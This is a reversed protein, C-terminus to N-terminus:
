DLLDLFALWICWGEDLSLVSCFRYQGEGDGYGRRYVKIM